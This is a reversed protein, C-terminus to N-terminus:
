EEDDYEEDYKKTKRDYQRQGTLFSMAIGNEGAKIILSSSVASSEHKSIREILATADAAVSGSPLKAGHKKLFDLQVQTPAEWGTEVVTCNTLGSREIADNGSHALITVQKKRNTNPNTGSVSFCGLNMLGRLPDLQNKKKIIDFLSM